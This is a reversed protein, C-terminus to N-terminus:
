YTPGLETMPTESSSVVMTVKVTGDTVVSPNDQNTTAASATTWFTLGTSFPIGRPVSITESKGSGAKFRWHPETTGATATYGDYIKLYAIASGQSNDFIITYVTGPSGTTNSRVTANANDEYVVRYDVAQPWSTVSLAM